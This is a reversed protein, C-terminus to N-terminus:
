FQSWDDDDAVAMAAGRAPRAIRRAGKEARQQLTHVPSHMRAVPSAVADDGIDFRAVQRTLEDAESALSRAAATAEEVMAANQQTVGDMESVATNVQQLGAAQQQASHAIETVLESVEGVRAIIRELSKGTESVLQVGAGVQQSSATVRVKVDKAADASRQALARVESAVVAFGKGADGARAAEVGANLALLNTQFAIGDIVAIIESIEASGREIGGMAEVARRVVEGGQEADTRAENVLNSAREAGGATRRVATTLEDMAAATEELSAAQQETRHSLDDSAQRIESAGTNIGNAGQAVSQMAVQLKGAADNFDDKLKAFPGTLEVDIRATLDGEALEGLATGVSSVLMETQAQKSREAALLQDRFMAMAKALDGVEDARPEVPVDVTMNGDALEGMARTMGVLPKAIMRILLVLIGVIGALAVLVALVTLLRAEAYLSEAEGKAASALAGEAEGLGHVDQITAEYAQRSAGHMQTTAETARGAQALAVLDGNIHLYGDWDARFKDIFARPQPKHLIDNLTRYRAEVIAKEAQMKTEAALRTQQDPATIHQWEALRFETVAGDMEHVMLMKPLRDGVADATLADMRSLQAISFWALGLLVVGVLGFSTILKTGIRM